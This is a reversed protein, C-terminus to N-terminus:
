GIVASARRSSSRPCWTTIKPMASEAAITRAAPNLECLNARLLIRRSRQASQVLRQTLQFPQRREAERYLTHLVRRAHHQAVARERHALGLTVCQQHVLGVHAAIHGLVQSHRENRQCEKRREHLGIAKRREAKPHFAPCSTSLRSRLRMPMRSSLWTAFGIKRLLSCVAHPTPDSAVSAISRHATLASASQM